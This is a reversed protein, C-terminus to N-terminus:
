SKLYFCSKTKKLITKEYMERYPETALLEGRLRHYHKHLKPNVYQMWSEIDDKLLFEKMKTASINIKSRPVIIEMTDKIDEKDFWKSRAEDNGYIMIEPKNFVFQKVNKFVYRGWEPTIDNEYTFDPLPKVIVSDGYIEKIM